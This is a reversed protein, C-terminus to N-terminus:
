RMIVMKRNEKYEGAEMVYFYIDSAVSEGDENRGDWYAAKDKSIYVGSPKNGLNLIRILNGAANYIKIKIDTDDSLSFPIWTEPNFPNPFNQLLATKKVDGWTGPLKGTTEVSHGPVSLNVEWLLIVGDISGSAM